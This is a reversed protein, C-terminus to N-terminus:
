IDKHLLNSKSLGKIIWFYQQWLVGLSFIRKKHTVNPEIILHSLEM